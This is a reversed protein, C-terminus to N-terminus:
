ITETKWSGKVPYVIKFVFPYLQAAVKIKVAADDRIFPKGKSSPKVEHIEIQHNRNLVAFDPSYFTKDALRFKIGEFKYWLIEGSKYLIELVEAYKAETKNM